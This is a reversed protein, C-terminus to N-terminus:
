SWEEWCSATGGIRLASRSPQMHILNWLVAAQQCCANMGLAESHGEEGFVPKQAFLLGPKTPSIGQFQNGDQYMLRDRVQIQGRKHMRTDFDWEKARPGVM